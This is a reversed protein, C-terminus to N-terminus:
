GISEKMIMAKTSELISRMHYKIVFLADVYEPVTKRAHEILPMVYTETEKIYKILKRRNFSSAMTSINNCRDIIKAICAIRNESIADYYRKKLAARNPLGDERFTLLNVAEKIPESCTLEQATVFCDELVDHLLITALIEDEKIGLAHAHCAMLLPHAIYPVPTQAFFAPKRTQGEHAKKMYHLAKLTETLHEQEAFFKVRSYMHDTSFLSDLMTWDPTAEAEGALVNVSTHLTEALKALKDTNPITLDREWQSVAQPTVYLRAALDEQTMNQKKRLERIQEGITM